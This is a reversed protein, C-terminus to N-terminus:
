GARLFSLHLEAHRLNLQIWEDHTLRGFIINPRDPASARLRAVARRYRQVADETSVMETGLTGGDVRPIKVGARMPGRLMKKKMMRMVVKVFLPPKLPVGDFGYDCWAALHGLTQGLTWNGVRVIRGSSDAAVLRDVEALCEDFNSFRLQRRGTVRSTDVSSPSTM